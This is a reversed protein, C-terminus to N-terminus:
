KVNFKTPDAGAKLRYVDLITNRAFWALFAVAGFGAVIALIKWNGAVAAWVGGGVVSLQSAIQAYWAKEGGTTVQKPEEQPVLSQKVIPAEPAIQTPPAINIQTGVESPVPPSPIVEAQSDAETTDDDGYSKYADALKTHYSNKAYAPGNYGRAFGKWDHRQLEDDLGKSKVFEVFAALHASESENMAKVFADVSTFGCLAFNFGMIQFKGYSASLMAAKRDLSLAQQFRKIEAAGTKYGGPASSSIAPYKADYKHGTYKAFHHREFLLKVQGDPLFGSGASEVQSVAKVAAVDVGLSDAAIEYDTETLSLAM